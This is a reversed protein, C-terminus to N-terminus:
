GFTFLCHTNVKTSPMTELKKFAEMAQTVLEGKSPSLYVKLNPNDARTVEWLNDALRLWKLKM